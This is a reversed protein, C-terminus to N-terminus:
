EFRICHVFDKARGCDLPHRSFISKYEALLKVLKTKWIPSLCNSDIDIDHLGLDSLMSSGPKPACCESQVTLSKERQTDTQDVTGAVTYKLDVTFDAM